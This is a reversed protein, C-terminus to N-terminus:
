IEDYIDNLDSDIENDLLYEIISEEDLETTEIEVESFDIVDAMEYLDINEALYDAVLEEDALAFTDIKQPTLTPTSFWYILAFLLLAATAVVPTLFRVIARKKNKSAIKDNVKTPFSDFYHPPTSFSNKNGFKEKLGRDIHENNSDM